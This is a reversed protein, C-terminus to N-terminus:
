YLSKLELLIAVSTGENFCCLLFSLLVLLDSLNLLSVIKLYQM